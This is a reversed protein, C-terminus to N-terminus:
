DINWYNTPDDNFAEAIGDRIYTDDDVTDYYRSDYEPIRQWDEVYEGKTNIRASNGGLEVDAEGKESFTYVKDYRADIVVNNNVDIYGWRGDIRVAILGNSLVGIDDYTPPIVIEGNLNVKGYKDNQKITALGSRFLFLNQCSLSFLIKGDLTIAHFIGNIYNIRDPEKIYQGDYAICIGERGKKILDFKASLVEGNRNCLYEKNYKQLIYYSEGNHRFIKIPSDSYCPFILLGKGDALGHIRYNNSKKQTLRIHGDDTIKIASYKNETDHLLVCGDSDYVIWGRSSKCVIASDNYIDVSELPESNLKLSVDDYIDVSGCDTEVITFSKFITQLAKYSANLILKSERLDYLLKFNNYVVEAYREYHITLEQSTFPMLVKGELNICSHCGDSEVVCFTNYVETIKYKQYDVVINGTSDIVGWQNDKVIVAHKQSYDSNFPMYMLDAQLTSIRFVRYGNACCLNNDDDVCIGSWLDVGRWYQKNHTHSEGKTLKIYKIVPLTMHEIVEATCYDIHIKHRFINLPSIGPEFTQCGLEKALTNTKEIDYTQTAEESIRYDSTERRSKNHTRLFNGIIKYKDISIEKSDSYFTYVYSYEVSFLDDEDRQPNGIYTSDCRYNEVIAIKM